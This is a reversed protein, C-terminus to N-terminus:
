FRTELQIAAHAANVREPDGANVVEGYAEAATVYQALLRALAAAPMSM